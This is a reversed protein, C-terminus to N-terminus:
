YLEWTGGSSSDVTLAHEFPSVWVATGGTNYTDNNVVGLVNFGHNYDSESSGSVRIVDGTTPKVTRGLLYMIADGVGLTWGEDTVTKNFGSIPHAPVAYHYTQFHVTTTIDTPGVVSQTKVKGDNQTTAGTTTSGDNNYQTVGAASLAAVAAAASLGVINPVDVNPVLNDYPAGTNFSPFNQWGDIAIDANDSPVSVTRTSPSQWPQDYSQDGISLYQQVNDNLTASTKVVTKDWGHNQNDNGPYLTVDGANPRQDNPQLPVNGWVFDVRTNGLDDVPNTM